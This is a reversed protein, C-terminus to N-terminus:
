ANTNPLTKGTENNQANVRREARTPARWNCGSLGGLLALAAGCGDGRWCGGAGLWRADGANQPRWPPM